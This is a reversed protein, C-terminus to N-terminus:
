FKNNFVEYKEPSSHDAYGASQLELNRKVAESEKVLSEPVAGLTNELTTLSAPTLVKLWWCQIHGKPFTGRNIAREIAVGIEGTNPDTLYEKAIGCLTRIGYARKKTITISKSM